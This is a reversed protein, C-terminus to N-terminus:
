FSSHLYDVGVGEFNHAKVALQILFFEFIDDLAFTDMEDNRIFTAMDVLDGVKVYDTTLVIAKRFDYLENEMVNM